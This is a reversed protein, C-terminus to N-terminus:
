RAPGSAFNAVVVRTEDRAILTMPLPEARLIEFTDASMVALARPGARWVQRFAALTPLWKQPEQVTGFELEDPEEVMVLTHQLYFPLTHDLTRVGYLPMGPTLVANVAPRLDAGSAPRGLSEHGLISLTTAIFFALAATTISPLNEAHTDGGAAQWRAAALGLLLLVWAAALWLAYHAFQSQVAETPGLRAVLPSALLGLAALALMANLQYRWARVSLRELALAGLVALAPFVPLIYGPLKSNSLSFFVFIVVAWSALLLTPKFGPAHRDAAVVRAMGPLLGLWPLWGAMLQPVFYWLPAGRRHIGSTYRQLHEHIFFFQPFEPNRMSVLVFWPATIALFIFTGSAIHLRRWLAWDRALATYAILVLGPLV